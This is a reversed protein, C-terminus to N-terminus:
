AWASRWEQGIRILPRPEAQPPVNQMKPYMTGEPLSDVPISYFQGNSGVVTKLTEIANVSQNILNQDFQVGYGCSVMGRGTPNDYEPNCPCIDSYPFWPPDVQSKGPILCRFVSYRYKNQELSM